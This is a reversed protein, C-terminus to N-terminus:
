KMDYEQFQLDSFYCSLIEECTSGDKAMENAGYQSLGVGHGLGKTTISIGKEVILFDMCSSNLNLLSRFKEAPIMTNGVQVQLAYGASDRMPITIQSEWAANGAREGNVATEAAEETVAAEGVGTETESSPETEMAGVMDEAAADVENMPIEDVTIVDDSQNGEQSVAPDGNQNEVETQDGTSSEENGTKKGSVNEADNVGTVIIDPYAAQCKQIIEEITFTKISLYNTGEIDSKSEVGTIYGYEGSNFVEEGVRTMGASMSHYPLEVLSDNYFAVIGQTEKIAGELKAYNSKLESESMITNMEDYTVFEEDFIIKEGNANAEMLQRLINTRMIVAQAMLAEKEYDISMAMPVIGTLYEELGMEYFNGNYQVMVTMDDSNNTNEARDISGTFLITCVYPLLLIVIYVSFIGKLKEKM